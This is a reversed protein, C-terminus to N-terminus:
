IQVNKAQQYGVRVVRWIKFSCLIFTSTGLGARTAARLSPLAMNRWLEVSVASGLSAVAMIFTVALALGDKTARDLM